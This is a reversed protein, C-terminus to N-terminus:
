WFTPRSIKDLSRAAPTMAGFWWTSVRHALQARCRWGLRRRDIRHPHAALQKVKGMLPSLRQLFTWLVGSRDYREQEVPAHGSASLGSATADAPRRFRWPTTQPQSRGTLITDGGPNSGKVTTPRTSDLDTLRPRRGRTWRRTAAPRRRFM